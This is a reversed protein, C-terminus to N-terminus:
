IRGIKKLYIALDDRLYPITDDRDDQFTDELKTPNEFASVDIPM